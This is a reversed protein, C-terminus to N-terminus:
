QPLVTMLDALTSVSVVNVHIPFRELNQFEVLQDTLAVRSFPLRHLPFEGFGQPLLSGSFTSGKQQQSNHSILVTKGCM